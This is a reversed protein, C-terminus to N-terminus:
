ENLNNTSQQDSTPPIRYSLHLAKLIRWTRISAKEGVRSSICSMVVWITSILWTWDTTTIEPSKLRKPTWIGLVHVAKFTYMLYCTSSNFPLVSYGKLTRGGNLFISAPWMTWPQSSGVVRDGYLIAHSRPYQRWHGNPLTRMLLLHRIPKPRSFHDGLSGFLSGIAVIMAFLGELHCFLIALPCTIWSM